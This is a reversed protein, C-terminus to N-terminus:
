PVMLHRTRYFSFKLNYAPSSTPSKNLMLYPEFFYIKWQICYILYIKQTSRSNTLLQIIVITNYWYFTITKESTKRVQTFMSAAARLPPAGEGAVTRSCSVRSGSTVVTLEDWHQFWARHVEWLTETKQSTHNSAACMEKGTKKKQSLCPLM